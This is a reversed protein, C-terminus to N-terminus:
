GKGLRTMHMRAPVPVLGELVHWFGTVADQGAGSYARAMAEGLANDIRASLAEGAATPRVERRRKDAAGPSVEVLGRDVLDRAVRSLAQKSTGTLDILDSMALGPWRVVHGLMRSHARGIGAARLEPDIARLLHSQGLLLLAVGRQVEAERLYLPSAAVKLRSLAYDNQIGTKTMPAM